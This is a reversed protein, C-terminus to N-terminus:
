AGAPNQLTVAVASWGAWHELVQAVLWTTPGPFDPLDPFVFLDGGKIAQRDIGEINGNLYIKRRTGEINLAGLKMLDTYSLAQVQCPVDATDTYTPVRHRDANTTFGTSMRFTAFVFPNVVAISNAVIAHLNM